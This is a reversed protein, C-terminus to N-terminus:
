LVMKRGTTSPAIGMVATAKPPEDEWRRQNLYTAPMPVYGQKWSDSENQWALAKLCLQLLISEDEDIRRWAIYAVKKAGKRQDPYAAWFTEFTESYVEKRNTQKLRKKPKIVIPLLEQQPIIWSYKDTHGGLMDMCAVLLYRGREETDKNALCDYLKQPDITIM